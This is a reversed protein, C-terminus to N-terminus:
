CHSGQINHFLREGEVGGSGLTTKRGLERVYDWCECHLNFLSLTHLDRDHTVRHVRDCSHRREGKIAITQKETNVCFQFTTDQKWSEASIAM